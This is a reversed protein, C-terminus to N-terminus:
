TSGDTAAAKLTEDCFFQERIENEPIRHDVTRYLGPEEEVAHSPRNLLQEWIGAELREQATMMINKWAIRPNHNWAMKQAITLRRPDSEECMLNIKRDAITSKLFEALQAESGKFENGDDPVFQWGHDISMVLIQM